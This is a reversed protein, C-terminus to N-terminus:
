AHSNALATLDESGGRGTYVNFSISVRPETAGESSGVSHVLWPPFLLLEGAAPTHALPKPNFPSDGWYLRATRPDEFQICGARLLAPPVRARRRRPRHSQMCRLLGANASISFQAGSNPPTAVYFVGSVASNEHDHPM